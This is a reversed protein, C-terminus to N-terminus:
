GVTQDASGFPSKWSRKILNDRTQLSLLKKKVWESFFFLSKWPPITKGKSTYWEKLEKPLKNGLRQSILHVQSTMEAVYLVHLGHKSDMWANYWELYNEPERQCNLNRFWKDHEDLLDSNPRYYEKKCMEPLIGPTTLTWTSRNWHLIQFIDHLM